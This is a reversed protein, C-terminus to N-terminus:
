PFRDKESKFEKLAEVVKPIVDIHVNEGWLCDIHEYGELAVSVTDAPLQTRMKEIDVLSDSDGYLLVIPTAINFTPFKAPHYFNGGYWSLADDDYMQFVGTRMIQFWHVVSKVSAFSYLHAYAALKQNPSIKRSYWRFLFILAADIIKVFIPPYLISQWMITSPLIAKRGFFLFLMNPSTKMFADVIETALGKPSFAPAIAIFVSLKDNLQPHVSLAAFAQASGQSFGIYSLKGSPPQTVDLIYQLTEPIDSMCLNDISFDWFKNSDPSLTMSKKSYKNGRNNGLWVDFGKEVLVFPLCRQEDTLCVWIESNMLLGHHLYVVPKNSRRGPRARGEGKKSPLRHIGLLYGDSTRVVHEEPTYGQLLCLEEFNRAARIREVFAAQEQHHKSHPSGAAKPSVYDFIRKSKGYFYNIVENPMAATLVSIIGEFLLFILGLLLTAYERFSLRGFFPIGAM